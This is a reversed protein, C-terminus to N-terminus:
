HAAAVFGKKTEITGAIPLDEWHGGDDASLLTEKVIQDTCDERLQCYCDWYWDYAADDDVYCINERQYGGFAARSLNASGMIVRKRADKALLLYINEHSLVSRAVYLRLTNNEICSFLDLKMKGAADRIHEVMKCQYAMVEQLSYSIIEDCGFLIKAYEFLDILKYVFNIGSSYTIAHLADFGSFQEKWSLTEAGMFEMKVVALSNSPQVDMEEQVGEPMDLLSLTEM